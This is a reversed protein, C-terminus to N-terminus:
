DYAVVVDSRSWGDYGGIALVKSGFTVSAFESRPSEVNKDKGEL